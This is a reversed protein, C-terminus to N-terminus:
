RAARQHDHRTGKLPQLPQGVTVEICTGGGSRPTITLEGGARLAREKMIEIGFSDERAASLGKGDDEVRLLANPPDVRCTVWLNDALAHRRTNAISEQAIRLLETETDTRLRRPSEALELHVTLDSTAGVVRVHEALASGLSMGPGVERRLDFISLRLESIVRTLESRLTHLASALEPRDHQVGAAMDDVVYGLSALEQAIGDHIERALRQREETTALTRLESFLLAADIRVSGRDLSGQALAVEGDAFPQGRRELGVLGVLEENVRMPLVCSCMTPDLTFGRNSRHPDHTKWAHSWVSKGVLDPEFELVAPSDTALLVLLGGPGETFVWGRDFPVKTRMVELQTTALGVADLGGSLERSLDRLQSLLRAAEAYKDGESTKQSQLRRLWSGLLGVMLALLSWQAADMLYGSEVLGDPEIMGRMLLTLFAVGCTIVTLSWGGILGASLCPVVLYPLLSPDYPNSTAILAAAAMVELPPRWRRLRRDAVPLSAAIALLTLLAMSSPDNAGSGTVVSLTFVFVLAAARSGVEVSRTDWQAIVREATM